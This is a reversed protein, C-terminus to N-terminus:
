QESIALKYAITKPQKNNHLGRITKVNKNHKCISVVPLIFLTCTRGTCVLYLRKHRDLASARIKSLRLPL